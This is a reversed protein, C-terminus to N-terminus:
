TGGEGSEPAPDGGGFLGMQREDVVAPPRAEPMEETPLAGPAEFLHGHTPDHGAPRGCQMGEARGEGKAQCRESIEMTGSEERRMQVAERAADRQDITLPWAAWLKLRDNRSVRRWHDRCAVGLIDAEANCGSAPCPRSKGTPARLQILGKPVRPNDERRLACRVAQLAESGIERINEHSQGFIDAVMELEMADTQGIPHGSEAVQRLRLLGGYGPFLWEPRDEPKMTYYPDQADSADLSCTGHQEELRDLGDGEPDTFIKLHPYMEKVSGNEPNVEIAAHKTCGIWPCPRPGDKCDGRTRPREGQWAVVELHTIDKEKRILSRLADQNYTYARPNPNCKRRRPPRWRAVTPLPLQKWRRIRPRRRWLVGEQDAELVELTGAIRITGDEVRAEVLLWVGARLVEARLRKERRPLVGLERGEVGPMRLVPQVGLAEVIRDPLQKRWGLSWELSIRDDRLEAYEAFDVSGDRVGQRALEELERAEAIRSRAIDRRAQVAARVEEMAADTVGAPPLDTPDPERAVQLM